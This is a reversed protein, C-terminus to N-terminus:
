SLIVRKENSSFTKAVSQFLLVDTTFHSPATFTKWKTINSNRRLFVNFTQSQDYETIFLQYGRREGERKESHAM